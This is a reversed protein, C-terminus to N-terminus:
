RRFPQVIIKNIIKWCALDAKSISGDDGLFEGPLLYECGDLTFLYEVGGLTLESEPLDYVTFRVKDAQIVFQPTEVRYRRVWCIPRKLCVAGLEKGSSDRYEDKFEAVCGFATNYMATVMIQHYLDVEGKLKARMLAIGYLISLGKMTIDLHIPTKKKKKKDIKEYSCVLRGDVWGLQSKNHTIVNRLMTLVRYAEKVAIEYSNQEPLSKYKTVYGKDELDPNESEFVADLLSHILTHRLYFGLPTRNQLSIPANRPPEDNKVMLIEPAPFTVGGMYIFEFIEQKLADIM